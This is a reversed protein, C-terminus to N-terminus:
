AVEKCLIVHSARVDREMPMGAFELVRDKGSKADKWVIRWTSDIGRFYRIRVEHTCIANSQMAQLVDRANLSKVSACVPKETVDEWGLNATGLGTRNTAPRQLMVRERMAGVNAM